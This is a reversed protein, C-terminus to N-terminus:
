SHSCSERYHVLLCQACSQESRETLSMRAPLDDFTKASVVIITVIVASLEELKKERTAARM